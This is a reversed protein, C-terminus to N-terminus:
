LTRRLLAPSNARRQEALNSKEKGKNKGGKGRQKKRGGGVEPRYAGGGVSWCNDITHGRPRPCNPNRCYREGKAKHASEVAALASEVTQSKGAKRARHFSLLDAITNDLTTTASFKFASIWTYFSTQEDPEAPLSAALFAATYNTPIELGTLALKQVAEQFGIIHAELDGGLELKDCMRRFWIMVSGADKQSYENQLAHWATAANKGTVKISLEPAVCKLLMSRLFNDARRWRRQKAKDAAPLKIEATLIGDCEATAAAQMFMTSWVTFNKEGVLVAASESPFLQALGRTLDWDDPLEAPAAPSASPDPDTMIDLHRPLSSSPPFSSPLSASRLRVRRRSTLIVPLPAWLRVFGTRLRSSRYRPRLYSYVYPVLRASSLRRPLLSLYPFPLFDIAQTSLGMQDPSESGHANEIVSTHFHLKHHFAQSRLLPLPFSLFHVTWDKGSLEFLFSLVTKQSTAIDFGLSPPQIRVSSNFRLDKLVDDVPLEKQRLFVSVQEGPM